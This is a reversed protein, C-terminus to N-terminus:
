GPQERDELIIESLPKGTAQIPKFSRYRAPDTVPQKIESILGAELLRKLFVTTVEETETKDRNVSEVTRM